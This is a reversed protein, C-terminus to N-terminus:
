PQYSNIQKQLQLLILTITTINTYQILLIALPLFFSLMQVAQFDQPTQGLISGLKVLMYRQPGIDTLM